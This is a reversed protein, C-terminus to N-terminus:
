EKIKELLTKRDWLTINNDKALEIAARTFYNNTIVMGKDLNYHKIGAVIEQIASNTVRDEYRKAQVGIKVLESEIIVDVGYDGSLPTVTAKYGLKKFYDAIFKEFEEGTMADIKEIPSLMINNETNEDLATTEEALEEKDERFLAQEKQEASVMKLTADIEHYFKNYTIDLPLDKDNSLIYYCTYLIKYFPLEKESTKTLSSCFSELNVSNYNLKYYKGYYNIISDRIVFYVVADLTELEKWTTKIRKKLGKVFLLFNEENTDDPKYECPKNKYGLYFGDKALWGRSLVDNGLLVLYNFRFQKEFSMVLNFIDTEYEKILNNLIEQQSKISGVINNFDTIEKQTTFLKNFNNEELKKNIESITLIIKYFEEIGSFGASNFKFEETRDSWSDKYTVKVILQNDNVSKQVSCAKVSFFLIFSGYDQKFGFNDFEIFQGEESNYLKSMLIKKNKLTNVYLDLDWNDILVKTAKLDNYVSELPIKKLSYKKHVVIFPIFFMLGIGIIIVIWEM